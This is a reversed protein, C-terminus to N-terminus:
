AAVERGCSDDASQPKCNSKSRSVTKNSHHVFSKRRFLSVVSVAIKAQLSIMRGRLWRVRDGRQGNFLPSVYSAQNITLPRNIHSFDAWLASPRNVRDDGDRHCVQANKFPQRLSQVRPSDLMVVVGSQPPSWVNAGAVPDLKETLTGRQETRGRKRIKHPFAFLRAQYTQERCLGSDSRSHFDLTAIDVGLAVSQAILDVSQILGSGTEEGM